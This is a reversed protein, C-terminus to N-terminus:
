LDELAAIRNQLIETFGDIESPSYGAARFADRIQNPSLRALIRGIWRADSCPIHRGIWRQGLRSFYEHPNFVYILNPTSPVGFDVYGSSVKRVFRSHSYSALNGKAKSKPLAFGETGFSAGLDAVVYVRNHISPDRGNASLYVTNNSDKLDWNNMLAMLVRLGNLERTGSFPNRRWRWEGAPKENTLLRELRVNSVAGGPSVFEQGRHLRPPMNRVQLVRVFYDEDTSYGAAWVLRTAVTEPRTEPGLKATWAVGQADLVAFKPSSGRLQEKVFTFPGRPEHAKGGPGYYLERSALDFPDRWLALNDRGTVEVSSAVSPSGKKAAEISFPAASVFTLLVVFCQSHLTM